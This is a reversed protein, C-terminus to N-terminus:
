RGATETAGGGSSERVIFQTPIKIIHGYKEKKQISSLLFEAAYKSIERKPNSVASLVPRGFPLLGDSELDDYSVLDIDKGPVLGAAYVEDMIGFSLFDSTSFIAGNRTEKLIQRGIRQGAARGLDGILTDELVQTIHATDFGADKAANFFINMRNKSHAGPTSAVYLKRHGREYLHRAADAYGAKLDPIIQHYKITSIYEHQVVVIQGEYAKLVLFRGEDGFYHSVIIGDLSQLCEADQFESQGLYRVKHGSATLTEIAPYYYMGISIDSEPNFRSDEPRFSIGINLAVNQSRNQGAVYTGSGHIRYLLGEDVLANIAKNATIFSVKYKEALRKTSLVPTGPPMKEKYIEEALRNKLNKSLMKRSVKTDDQSM